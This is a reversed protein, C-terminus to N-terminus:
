KRKEMAQHGLGQNEEKDECDLAELDKFTTNACILYKRTTKMWDLNNAKMRRFIEKLLDNMCDEGNANEQTRTQFPQIISKLYMFRGEIVRAMMSSGGVEGRLTCTQTYKPNGPIQRYVNDDIRQLKFIENETFNIVNAGYLVSPLCVTKWYAKAITIKHCRKAIISYTMNALNHAKQIMKNQLKLMNKDETITLGLYKIENTVVIGEVSEPRNQM